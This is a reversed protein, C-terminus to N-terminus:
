RLEFFTSFAGDSPKPPIEQPRNLRPDRFKVHKDHVTPGVFRGSIVNSATELQSNIYNLVACFYTFRARGAYLWMIRDRNSALDGTIVCQIQSFTQRYFLASHRLTKGLGGGIPSSRTKRFWISLWHKTRTRPQSDEYSPWTQWLLIFQNVHTCEM